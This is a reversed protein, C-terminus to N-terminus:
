ITVGSFFQVTKKIQVVEVTTALFHPRMKASMVAPRTRDSGFRWSASCPLFTQRGIGNLRMLGAYKHMSSAKQCGAGISHGLWRAIFVPRHDRPYIASAALLMAFASRTPGPFYWLRVSRAKEDIVAYLYRQTPPAYNPCTAARYVTRWVRIGGM